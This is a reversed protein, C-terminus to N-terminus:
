YMKNILISWKERESLTFSLNKGEKLIISLGNPLLFMTNFYHVESIESPEIELNYRNGHGNLTKFYIRQNTLVLKGEIKGEEHIQKTTAAKIVVENPQLNLTM